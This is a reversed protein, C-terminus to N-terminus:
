SKEWKLSDIGSFYVYGSKWKFGCPECKNTKSRTGCLPCHKWLEKLSEKELEAQSIIIKM